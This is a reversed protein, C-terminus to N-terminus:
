TPSGEGHGDVPEEADADEELPDEEEWGMVEKFFVPLGEDPIRTEELHVGAQFVDSGGFYNGPEAYTLTFILAPYLESLRAIVPTPPSWATDFSYGNETKQQSEFGPEWKTGWNEVCWDYWDAAGYKMVLDIQKQAWLELAHTGAGHPPRAPATTGELEKHMPVIKNFELFPGTEDLFRQAEEEPGSAELINFCWNPM